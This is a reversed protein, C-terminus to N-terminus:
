GPGRFFIGQINKNAYLAASYVLLGTTQDTLWGSSALIRFRLCGVGALVLYVRNTTHPRERASAVVHLPSGSLPILILFLSVAPPSRGSTAHKAQM